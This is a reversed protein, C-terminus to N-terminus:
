VFKPVLFKDEGLVDIWSDYLLGDIVRRTPTGKYEKWNSIDTTMKAVQYAEWCDM